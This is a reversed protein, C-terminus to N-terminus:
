PQRIKAILQRKLTPSCVKTLKHHGSHSFPQIASHSFPQIASHSFPQIASHSFPQIASHSFPQIASHSFPQIALYPARKPYIIKIFNPKNGL